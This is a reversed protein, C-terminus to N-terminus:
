HGPFRKVIQKRLKEQTLRSPLARSTWSSYGVPTCTGSSAAPACTCHRARVASGASRRRSMSELERTEEERRRLWLPMAELEVRRLAVGVYPDRHALRSLGQYM